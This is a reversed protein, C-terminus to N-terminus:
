FKLSLSHKCNQEGLKLPGKTGARLTTVGLLGYDMNRKRHSTHSPYPIRSVSSSVNASGNFKFGNGAASFGVTRDQYFDHQYQAVFDAPTQNQFMPLSDSFEINDTTRAQSMLDSIISLWLEDSVSVSGNTLGM